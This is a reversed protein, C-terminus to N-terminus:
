DLKKLMDKWEETEPKFSVYHQSKGNQILIRGCNECQFIEKTKDLYFNYFLDNIMSSASLDQPYPPTLGNVKMWEEKKGEQVAEVYTDILDALKDFIEEQGSDPIIDGKYSLNDAQDVITSGCKCGIKGM